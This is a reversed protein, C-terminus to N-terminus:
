KKGVKTQFETVAEGNVKTDTEMKGLYLDYNKGAKKSFFSPAQMYAYDGSAIAWKVIKKFEEPNRKHAGFILNIDTLWKDFIANVFVRKNEHYPLLTEYFWFVALQNINEKIRPPKEMDSIKAGGKKVKKEKKQIKSGNEGVVESLDSTSSKDDCVTYIYEKSRRDHVTQQVTQQETQQVVPNYKDYNIISILNKITTKQQVTQQILTHGNEHGDTKTNKTNIDTDTNQINIVKIQEDLKLESFYRRVKGRSWGWREALTQESHGIQGRKINIRVNHVHIIGDKWNALGILDIWAQSRMFPKDDLWIDSKLLHRYVRIYGGKVGM